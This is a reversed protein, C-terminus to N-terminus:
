FIFEYFFVFFKCHYLLLILWLFKPVLFPPILIHHFKLKVQYLVEMFVVMEMHLFVLTPQFYILPFVVLISQFFVELVLLCFYFSLKFFSIFSFLSFHNELVLTPLYALAEEVQLKVNRNNIEIFIYIRISFNLIFSYLFLSYYRIQDM